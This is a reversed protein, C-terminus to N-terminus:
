FLIFFSALVLSHSLFPFFCLFSPLLVLFLVTGPSELDGDLMKKLVTFHLSTLWARVSLFFSPFFSLILSPFFSLFFLSKLEFYEYQSATYKCLLSVEENRKKGERQFFPLLLFYVDLESVPESLAHPM